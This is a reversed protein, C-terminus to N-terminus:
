NEEPLTGYTSMIGFKVDYRYINEYQNYYLAATVFKIGFKNACKKMLDNDRFETQMGNAENFEEENSCTVFSGYSSSDARTMRPLNCSSTQLFHELCKYTLMCYKTELEIDAKTQELSEITESYLNRWLHLQNGVDLVSLSMRIQNTNIDQFGFYHLDQLLADKSVSSPLYVFGDRMYNLIYRFLESDRDIFIHENQNKNWTKSSIKALMTDPYSAVLSQSVEYMKGGVNFTITSTMKKSFVDNYNNHIYIQNQFITPIPDLLPPGNHVM